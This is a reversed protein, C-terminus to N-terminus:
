PTGGKIGHVEAFDLLAAGIDRAELPDFEHLFQITDAGLGNRLYFRLYFRIAKSDPLEELEDNLYGVVAPVPYDKVEEEWIKVADPAEEADLFISVPFKGEETERIFEVHPRAKDPPLAVVRGFYFSFAAGISRLTLNYGISINM